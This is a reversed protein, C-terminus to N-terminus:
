GNKQFAPFGQQFGASLAFIFLTGTDLIQSNFVGSIFIVLSTSLLFYGLPTKRNKWANKIIEVFLWFLVAVGVLGFSVAMYLINNHPHDVPWGRKEMFTRFGGTGVGFVPNELFVDVAGRTIYTREEKSSHKIGSLTEPDSNLISKVQSLSFDIRERVVPSLYMLGAILIFFLIFKLASIKRFLNVPILPSLLIFTVYGNRGELAVLHSFYLLMLFLFVLKIKKETVNKVFYSASLIGIILFASLTSYTDGFGHYPWRGFSPVIGAIQLAAVFANLALGAFFAYILREVPFDRFAISAAALCYLWYYSKRAYDLGLGTHDTTYALGIWPLVMFALVPWFWSNRYFNRINKARGSVIWILVSLAGFLNQPATGFPLALLTCVFAYFLFADGNKQNNKFWDTLASIIM